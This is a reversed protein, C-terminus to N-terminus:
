VCVCWVGQEEDHMIVCVCVCMCVCVFCIRAETAHRTYQFIRTMDDRERASNEHMCMCVCVYMCIRLMPQCIRADTAPRTYQFIRTMDDRERASNGIPSTTDSTDSSAVSGSVICVYVYIYVCLIYIYVYVCVCCRSAFARM